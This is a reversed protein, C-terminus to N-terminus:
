RGSGCRRVSPGNTRRSGPRIRVAASRRGCATIAPIASNVRSIPLRDPLSGPPSPLARSVPRSHASGTTVVSVRGTPANQSDSAIVGTVAARLPPPESQGHIGPANRQWRVTSTTTASRVRGRVATQIHSTVATYTTRESTTM